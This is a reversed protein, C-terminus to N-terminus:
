KRHAYAALRKSVAQLKALLAAPDPKKDRAYALVAEGAEVMWRPPLDKTPSWATAGPWGLGRLWTSFHYTTGDLGVGGRSYRAELIANAWLTYAVAAIEQPLEVRITAARTPPQSEKKARELRWSSLIYKDKELTISWEFADAFSPYRGFRALYYLPQEDPMRSGSPILTDEPARPDFEEQGQTVDPEYGFATSATACILVLSLALAKM